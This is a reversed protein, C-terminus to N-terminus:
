KDEWSRSGKVVSYVGFGIIGLAIVAVLGIVMIPGWSRGGSVKVPTVPKRGKGSGKGPPTKKAGTTKKAPGTPPKGQGTTKGVKVSSPVREPGPTSMSM